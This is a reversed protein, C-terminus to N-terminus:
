FLFDTPPGGLVVSGYSGAPLDWTV